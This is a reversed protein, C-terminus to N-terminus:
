APRPRHPHRTRRAGLRERLRENEAALRQAINTQERVLRNLKEPDGLRALLLTLLWQEREVERPLRYREAHERFDGFRGAGHFPLHSAAGAVARVRRRPGVYLLGWKEPIEEVDIMGEPCMYYRWVGLGRGPTRHPKKADALFDARSVKCEVLVSGDLWGRARFGIADPAEGSWGSRCETVAIQCGHGGKSHPRKLWRQAIDCLDHHTATM